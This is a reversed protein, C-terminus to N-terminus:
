PDAGTEGTLSGFLGEPSYLIVQPPAGILPCLKAGVIEECMKTDQKKHGTCLLSRSTGCAAGRARDLPDLVFLGVGLARGTRLGFPLPDILDVILGDAAPHSPLRRRPGSLFVFVREVVAAKNDVALKLVLRRAADSGDNDLTIEEAIDKMLDDAIDRGPRPVNGLHRYTNETTGRM